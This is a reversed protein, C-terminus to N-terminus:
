MPNYAHIARSKLETRVREALEYVREKSWGLSRTCAALLFGEVGDRTNVVNWIALQKLKPDRPWPSSPWVFHKEVVGHFGADELLGKFDRLEVFPQGLKAAVERIVTWAQYQATDPGM